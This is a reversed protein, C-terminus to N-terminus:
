EDLLRYNREFYGRIIFNFDIGTIGGKGDREVDFFVLISDCPSTEETDWLRATFFRQPTEPHLSLMGNDLLYRLEETEPDGRRWILLPRATQEYWGDGAPRHSALFCERENPYPYGSDDVKFFDGARAVQGKGETTEQSFVEYTGDPFPVIRGQATMEREMDTGAGLEWARVKTNIKIAHPM